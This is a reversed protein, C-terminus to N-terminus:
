IRKYETGNITIEKFDKESGIVDIEFTYEVKYKNGVTSYGIYITNEKFDVVYGTRKLGKSKVEPQFYSTLGSMYGTTYINIYGKKFSGDACRIEDVTEWNGSFQEIQAKLDKDLNFIIPQYIIPNLIMIVISIIILRSIRVKVIMKKFLISVKNSIM